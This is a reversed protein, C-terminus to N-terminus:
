ELRESGSYPLVHKPKLVGEEYIDDDFIYRLPKVFGSLLNGEKRLVRYAEKWVPVIDPVFVNSVPHVILDFLQDSFMSLDRMDREVTRLQPRHLEAVGRDRALQNPSNDFVTVNAGAAALVPGQRGGGSALCLVDRGDLPELWSLPVPNTPTLVISCRGQRAKTIETEGVPATWQNGCDVQRNWAQRNHKRVDM